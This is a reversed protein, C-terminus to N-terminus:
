LDSHPHHARGPRASFDPLLSVNPAIVDSGGHSACMERLTGIMHSSVFPRPKQGRPTDRDFGLGLGQRGKNVAPGAKKRSLTTPRGWKSASGILGRPRAQHQQLAALPHDGSHWHAHRRLRSLPTAQLFRYVVIGASGRRRYLGTLSVAPCPSTVSLWARWM